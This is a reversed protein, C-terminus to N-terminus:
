SNLNKLMNHLDATTGVFVTNNTVSGNNVASPKEIPQLQRQIKAKKDHIDMLKVAIDSLNSLMGNLVEFSRPSEEAVAIRKLDGFAEEGQKLLNYLTDRVAEADADLNSIAPKNTFEVESEPRTKDIVDEVDFTDSLSRFIKNSDDSM